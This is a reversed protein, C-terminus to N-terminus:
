GRRMREGLLRGSPWFPCTWRFRRGASRLDGPKAGLGAKTGGSLTVRGVLLCVPFGLWRGGQGAPPVPSRGRGWGMLTGGPRPRWGAPFRVGDELSGWAPWLSRRPRTYAPPPRGRGSCPGQASTPRRSEGGSVGHGVLRLVRVGAPRLPGRARALSGAGDMYMRPAWRFSREVFPGGPPLLCRFTCTEGAPEVNPPGVGFVWLLRSGHSWRTARLSGRRGRRLCRSRQGAWRVSLPRLAPIRGARARV